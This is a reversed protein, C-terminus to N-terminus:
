PLPMLSGTGGGSSIEDLMIKRWQQYRAGLPCLVAYQDWIWIITGMTVEGDLKSEFQLRLNRIAPANKFGWVLSNAHLNNTWAVASDWQRVTMNEPRRAVLSYILERIRAAERYPETAHRYWLTGIIAVSMALIALWYRKPRAAHSDPHADFSMEDKPLYRIATIV